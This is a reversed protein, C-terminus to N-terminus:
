RAYRRRASSTEDGGIFAWAITNLTHREMTSGEGQSAEKSKSPRPIRADERGRLNRREVQISSDNKVYKKLHGEQILKEIEM